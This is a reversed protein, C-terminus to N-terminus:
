NRNHKSRCHEALYLDTLHPQCLNPFSTAFTRTVLVVNQMLGFSSSERPSTSLYNRPRELAKKSEGREELPKLHSEGGGEKGRFHRSVGGM